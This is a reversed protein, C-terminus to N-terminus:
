VVNFRSFLAEGSTDSFVCGVGIRDVTFANTTATSPPSWVQGNLSYQVTYNNGSKNLRLWCRSTNLSSFGALSNGYSSFVYAALNVLFVGNGNRIGVGIGAGTSSIIVPGCLHTTATSWQSMDVELSFDGAPATQLYLDGDDLGTVYLGSEGAQWTEDGTVINRRTWRANLSTGSFDDGKTAHLTKRSLYWPSTGSGGSAAITITDGPDNPTITVGTGAVLAAAIADRAQEDTYGGTTVADDLDEIATQVDTGTVVTLGTPDVSVQGARPKV